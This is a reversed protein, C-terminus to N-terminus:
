SMSGALGSQLEPLDPPPIAESAAFQNGGSQGPKLKTLIGEQQCSPGPVLRSPLHIPAGRARLPQREDEAPRM